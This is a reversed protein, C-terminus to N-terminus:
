SAVSIDGEEVGCGCGGCSGDARCSVHDDGETQKANASVGEGLTINCGFAHMVTEMIQKTSVVDHPTDFDYELCANNWLIHLGSFKMTKDKVVYSQFPILKADQISRGLHREIARLDDIINM